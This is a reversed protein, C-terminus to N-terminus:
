VMTPMHRVSRPEHFNAPMESSSPVQMAHCVVNCWMGSSRTGQMTVTVLFTEWFTRSTQHIWIKQGGTKFNASPIVGRTSPLYVTRVGSPISGGLLNITTYSDKQAYEMKNTSILNSNTGFGKMNDKISAMILCQTTPAPCSVAFGGLNLWHTKFHKRVSIKLKLIQCLQELEDTSPDNSNFSSNSIQSMTSRHNYPNSHTKKYYIVNKQTRRNSFTSITNDAFYNRNLPYCM